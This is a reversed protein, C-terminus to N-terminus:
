PTHVAAAAESASSTGRARDGRLPGALHDLVGLQKPPRPQVLLGGLALELAVLHDAGRGVVPQEPGAHREPLVVLIEPPPPPFRRLRRRHTGTRGRAPRRGGASRQRPKQQPPLPARSSSGQGQCQQRGARTCGARVASRPPTRLSRRRRDRRVLPLELGAPLLLYRLPPGLEELKVELRIEIQLCLPDRQLLEPDAEGRADLATRHAADDDDSGKPLVFGARSERAVRAGSDAERELTRMPRVNPLM